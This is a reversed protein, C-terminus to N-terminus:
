NRVRQSCKTWKPVILFSFPKTNLSPFLLLTSKKMLFGRQAKKKKRNYKGSMSSTVNALPFQPNHSNGLFHLSHPITNMGINPHPSQEKCMEEQNTKATQRYVRRVRVGLSSFKCQSGYVGSELPFVSNSCRHRM